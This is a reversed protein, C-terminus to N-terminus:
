LNPASLFADFVVPYTAWSLTGTVFASASRAAFTEAFGKLTRDTERDPSGGGSKCDARCFELDLLFRVQSFFIPYPSM